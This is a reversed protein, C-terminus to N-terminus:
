RALWGLARRVYLAPLLWRRSTEYKRFMHAAPPFAHERLMRWRLRWGALARLEALLLARRGGRLFVMSAERRAAARTLDDTLAPPLPTGFAQRTARLADLCLGAVQHHAARQALEDIQATGLLPVLLHLDHLWILRDGRHAIGGSYFPAHHHGARHLAALLVADVLGPARAHPGLTPVPAAGAELGDFDLVPSLLPSNNIRWHVDLVLPSDDKWFSAESSAIEGGTDEARRYGQAALLEFLQQRQGPRVLLDTDARQRLVPQAYHSYALPTGKILIPAIGARAMVELLRMLEQRQGLEVAAAQLTRDRLAARVVDPVGRPNRELSQHLLASVGHLRAQALFDDANGDAPWRGEGRLLPALM